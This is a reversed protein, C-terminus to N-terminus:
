HLHKYVINHLLSNVCHLLSTRTLIHFIHSLLLLVVSRTWADVLISSLRFYTSHSSCFYNNNLTLRSNDDMITRISNRDRSPYYQLTTEYCWSLAELLWYYCWKFYKLNLCIKCWLLSSWIQLSTYFPKMGWLWIM